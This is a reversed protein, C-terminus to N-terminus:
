ADADGSDILSRGIAELVRSFEPEFSIIVPLNVGADVYDLVRDRLRRPGGVISYTEVMGDPLIRSAEEIGHRELAERVRLAEEETFGDRELAEPSSYAVSSAVFGRVIRSAMGREEPSYLIYCAVELDELRRGAREAGIRLREVAERVYNTSCGATLLAGDAIEGALSLMKPGVAGLYIPVDARLPRFPESLAFYPTSGLRVRNIQFARGDFTVECGHLLRRIVQIAERMLTLPREVRMGIRGILSPVGTGLTLIVRGQSAEDITAVTQAILVPNRTIPNIVGFALRVRSTSVALCALISVSDRLFYDEAIWISDVGLREAESAYSVIQRVTYPTGTFAIGVKM